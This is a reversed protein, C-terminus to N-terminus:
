RVRSPRRRRGAWCRLRRMLRTGATDRRRVVIPADFRDAPSPRGAPDARHRGSAELGLEARRRAEQLSRLGEAFRDPDGGLDPHHERVFARLAAREASAPRRATM